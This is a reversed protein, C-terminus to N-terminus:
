RTPPELGEEAVLRNPPLQGLRAIVSSLQRRSAAQPPGPARAARVARDPGVSDGRRGQGRPAANRDPSRRRGPEPRASPARGDRRSPSRTDIAQAHGDERKRRLRLVAVSQARYQEAQRVLKTSRLLLRGSRHLDPRGAHRHLITLGRTRFALGAKAAKDGTCAPIRSNEVAETDTSVCSNRATPRM